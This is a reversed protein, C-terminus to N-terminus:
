YGPNQTLAKDVLLETTPIPFLYKNADAIDLAAAVGGTRVLNFWRDTEFPFEVRREDQIQQILAGQSIGPAIDPVLARDRVANLDALAGSLQGLRAYAESRILYLESLRIVYAPDTGTPTRYYLQGYWLNGPPATQAILAKRNGGVQPDNLLKVLADTPAWERRGGLAPPLWWNSHGNTSSPSYSIEFVSEATGAANNAFFASYPKLLQYDSHDQIIRTAYIAASDWQRRYLYYRALLAWVTRRTARNRDTTEPLLTEAQQLDALVQAYTEDATSRKVGAHDSPSNTPTLILQVGGWGRVLDFYGLARVFHAEGLYQDRTQESFLPDQIGPVKALIYNASLITRYIAQWASAVYANDSTTQHLTIEHPAAQSGTWQVDGGSLYSLAPFNSGYYGDAGLLHYMGNVATEATGADTIAEDADVQLSPQVELFQKCSSFALTLAAFTWLAKKM